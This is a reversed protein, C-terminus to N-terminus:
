NKPDSNDFSVGKILVTNLSADESTLCAIGVHTSGNIQMETLSDIMDQIKVHQGQVDNDIPITVSHVNTM